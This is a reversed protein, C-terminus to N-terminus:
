NIMGVAVKAIKKLKDRDRKMEDTLKEFAIIKKGLYDNAQHLEANQNKIENMQSIIDQNDNSEHQTKLRNIEQDKERLLQVLNNNQKKSDDISKLYDDSSKELERLKKELQKVDVERNNLKARLDEITKTYGDATKNQTGQKTASLGSKKMQTQHYYVTSETVGTKVAIQPVSLAGKNLLEKVENIKEIPYRMIVPEGRKIRLMKKQIKQILRAVYSQSVGLKEGMERQKTGNLLLQVIQKEREDLVQMYDQIYIESFDADVGVYDMRTTGIDEDSSIEADLSESDRLLVYDQVLKADTYSINLTEQIHKVSLDASAEEGIAQYYEKSLKKIYPPFKVGPNAGRLLMRLENQMAPFLYTLLNVHHNEGDFKQFAKLFGIKATSVLDEYEYGNRKGISAFSRCIKHLLGRHTKLATELDIEEGKVVRTITQEVM